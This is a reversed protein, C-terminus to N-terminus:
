GAGAAARAHERYLRVQEEMPLSDDPVYAGAPKPAGVGQGGTKGTPAHLFPMAGLRAKVLTEVPKGMAAPDRPRLGGQEDPEFDAVLIRYAAETDALAVGSKAIAARLATERAAAQAEAERTALQAKLADLERRMAAAAADPKAGKAPPDGGDDDGGDTGKAPERKMRATIAANVTAPVSTKLAAVESSLGVILAKLEALDGTAPAPTGSKGSSDAGQQGHSPTDGM